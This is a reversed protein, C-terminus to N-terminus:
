SAVESEAVVRYWDMGKTTLHWEDNEDQVLRAIRMVEATRRLSGRTDGCKGRLTAAAVDCFEQYHYADFETADGDALTAADLHRFQWLHRCEHTVAETISTGSCWAWAEARLWIIDPCDPRTMGAAEGTSEGASAHRQQSRKIYFFHRMLADLNDECGWEIAANEAEIEFVEPTNGAHVYWRVTIPPLELVDEMLFLRRTADYRQRATWYPRPLEFYGDYWGSSLRQGVTRSETDPQSLSPQELTWDEASTERMATANNKVEIM